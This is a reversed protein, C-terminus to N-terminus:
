VISGRRKDGSRRPALVRVDTPVQDAVPGLGAVTSAASLRDRRATLVGTLSTAAILLGLLGALWFRVSGDLVDVVYGAYPVHGVVVDQTSEDLAVTWPDVAGAGDSSTRLVGADIQAVRRTVLSSGGTSSARPYTIVDGVELDAVPVSEVVVASGKAMTGSMADDTVTHFSLGAAAPLLFSLAILMLLFSASRVVRRRTRAARRRSHTTLELM